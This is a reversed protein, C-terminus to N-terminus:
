WAVTRAGDEAAEAAALKDRERERRARWIRLAMSRELEDRISGPESERAIRRVIALSDPRYAWPGHGDEHREADDLVESAYKLGYDFSDHGVVRLLGAVTCLFARRRGQEDYADVSQEVEACEECQVGRGDPWHVAASRWWHLSRSRGCTSCRGNAHRRPLLAAIAKDVERRLTARQEATIYSWPKRDTANVNRAITVEAAEAATRAIADTVEIGLVGRVIGQDTAECATHRWRWPQEILDAVIAGYFDRRPRERPGRSDLPAGIVWVDDLDRRGRRQGCVLCAEMAGAAPERLEIPYDPETV